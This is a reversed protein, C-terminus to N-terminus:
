AGDLQGRQLEADPLNSAWGSLPKDTRGDVLKTPEIDQHAVGPM